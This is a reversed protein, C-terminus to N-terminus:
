HNWLTGRAVRVARQHADLSLSMGQISHRATGFVYIRSEISIGERSRTVILTGAPSYRPRIPGDPDPLDVSSFRSAPMSRGVRPDIRMPSVSVLLRDSRARAPHRARFTPKM